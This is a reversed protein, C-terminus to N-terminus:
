ESRTIIIYNSNAFITSDGTITKVQCIFNFGTYFTYSENVELNPINFGIYQGDTTNIIQM